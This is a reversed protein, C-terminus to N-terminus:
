VWVKVFVPCTRVAVVRGLDSRARADAGNDAGNGAAALTGADARRPRRPPLRRHVASGRCAASRGLSVRILKRSLAGTVMVSLPRQPAPADTEKRIVGSFKCCTRWNAAPSEACQPQGADDM